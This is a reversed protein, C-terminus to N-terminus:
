RGFPNELETANDLWDSDENGRLFKKIDDSKLRNSMVSSIFNICEDCCNFSENPQRTIFNNTNLYIEVIGEGNKDAMERYCMDCFYKIM